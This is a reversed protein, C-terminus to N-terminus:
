KERNIMWIAFGVGVVSGGLALFAQYVNGGSRRDLLWGIFWGFLMCGVLAYGATIGVGLGRYNSPDREGKLPASKAQTERGRAKDLRKGLDKLRQDFEDELAQAKAVEGTEELREEIAHFRATVEDPDEGLEVQHMLEHLKAELEDPQVDADEGLLKRLRREIEEEDPHQGPSEPMFNPYGRFPTSCELTPANLTNFHRPTFHGAEETLCWSKM